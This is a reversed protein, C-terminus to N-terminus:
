DIGLIHTYVDINPYVSSLKQCQMLCFVRKLNVNNSLHDCSELFIPSVALTYLQGVHM